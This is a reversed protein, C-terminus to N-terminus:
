RVYLGFREVRRRQRTNTGGSNRQQDVPSHDGSTDANQEAASSRKRPNHKKLEAPAPATHAQQDRGVPQATRQNQQGTLPESTKAVEPATKDRTLYFTAVAMAVLVGACIVIKWRLKIWASHRAYEIVALWFLLAALWALWSMDYKVALYEAFAGIGGIVYERGHHEKPTEMARVSLAGTYAVWRLRVFLSDAVM